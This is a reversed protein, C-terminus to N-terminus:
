DRLEIRAKINMKVKILMKALRRLLSDLFWIVRKSCLPMLVTLAKKKLGCVTLNLVDDLYAKCIWFKSLTPCSLEFFM